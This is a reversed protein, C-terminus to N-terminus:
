IPDVSIIYKIDYVLPVYCRQDEVGRTGVARYRTQTVNISGREKMAFADRRSGLLRHPEVARKGVARFVSLM